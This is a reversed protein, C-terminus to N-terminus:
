QFAAPKIGPQQLHKKLAKLIVLIVGSSMCILIFYFLYVCFLILLQNNHLTLSDEKQLLM